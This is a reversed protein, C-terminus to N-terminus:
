EILIKSIKFYDNLILKGLGGDNWVINYTIQNCAVESFSIEGIKRPIKIAASVVGNSNQIASTNLLNISPSFARNEIIKDLIEISNGIIKVRFLNKSFSPINIEAKQDISIPIKIEKPGNWFGAITQKNKLTMIGKGRVHNNCWNGEYKIFGNNQFEKESLLGIGFGERVDNNYFGKYLTDRNLIHIGYLTKVGGLKDWIAHYILTDSKKDIILEQYTGHYTKISNQIKLNAVFHVKNSKVIVSIIENNKFEIEYEIGFNTSIKWQGEFNGDHNIKSNASAGLATYNLLKNSHIEIYKILINNSKNKEIEACFHINPYNLIPNIAFVYTPKGPREDHIQKINSKLNKEDELKVVEVLNKNYLKKTFNKFDQNEKKLLELKEYHFHNSNLRKVADKPLWFYNIQNEKFNILKNKEWIGEITSGDNYLIKGEGSIDNNKWNGIYSLIQPNSNYKIEGEGNRLFDNNVMGKYIDGNKYRILCKTYTSIKGQIFTGFISNGNRLSLMSESSNRNKYFSKESDDFKNNVWFGKYLLFKNDKAFRYEGFGVIQHLQNIKGYFIDGNKFYIKCDLLFNDQVYPNDGFYYNGTWSQAWFSGSYQYTNLKKNLTKSFTRDELFCTYSFEIIKNNELSHIQIEGTKLGDISCIWFGLNKDIALEKGNFIPRLNPNEHSKPILIISHKKGDFLNINAYLVKEKKFEHIIENWNSDLDINKLKEVSYSYEEIKIIEGFNQQCHCFQIWLSHITILTLIKKISM